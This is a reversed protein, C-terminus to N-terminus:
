LGAVDRRASARANDHGSSRWPDRANQNGHTRRQRASRDQSHQTRSRRIIGSRMRRTAAPSAFWIAAIWKVASLVGYPPKVLPLGDVTLGGGGGAPGGPPPGTRGAPPAKIGDGSSSCLSTGYWSLRRCTQYVLTLFSGIADLDAMNDFPPILPEDTNRSHTFPAESRRQCIVVSWRRDCLRDGSTDATGPTIGTPDVLNVSAFIKYGLPRTQHAVQIISENERCDSPLCWRCTPVRPEM